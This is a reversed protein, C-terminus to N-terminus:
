CSIYAKRRFLLFECIKDKLKEVQTEDMLLFNLDDGNSYTLILLGSTAAKNQQHYRMTPGCIRIQLNLTM